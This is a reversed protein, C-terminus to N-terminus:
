EFINRYDSLTDLTMRESSRDDMAKHLAIRCNKQLWPTVHEMEYWTLTADQARRLAGITFVECDYGQPFSRSPWVNSAYEADLRSRLAIVDACVDPRLMPCDATIRVIVDAAAIKAAKAYRELVDIEPGTVCRVAIYPELIAADKEPIAVVVEDVGEIQKARYVVEEIVTRGTPLPLLVKAPLRSSGLRAQVIAVTKTM